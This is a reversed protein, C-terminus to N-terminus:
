RRKVGRRHVVWLHVAVRWTGSIGTFPPDGDPVSYGPGARGVEAEKLQKGESRDQEVVTQQMFMQQAGM